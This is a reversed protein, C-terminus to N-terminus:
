ATANDAELQKILTDFLLDTNNWKEVTIGTKYQRTVLFKGINYGMKELETDSWGFQQFWQLTLTNDPDIPEPYSSGGRAEWYYQDHEEWTEPKPRWLSADFRDVFVPDSSGQQIIARKDDAREVRLIHGIPYAPTELVTELEEDDVTAGEFKELADSTFDEYDPNQGSKVYELAAQPTEADVYHVRLASISTNVEFRPM